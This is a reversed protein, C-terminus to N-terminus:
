AAPSASKKYICGGIIYLVPLVAGVITLIGTPISLSTMNFSGCALSLALSVLSLACLVIGAAIFFGGNAPDKCKKLGICGLILELASSVFILIMTVILISAWEVFLSVDIAPDYVGIFSYILGFVSIVTSIAGFVILLISGTKLLRKDPMNM